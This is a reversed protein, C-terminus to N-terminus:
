ARPAGPMEAWHTPKLIALPRAWSGRSLDAEVWGEIRERKQEAWRGAAVYVGDSLLVPRDTPAGEIPLWRITRWTKRRTWALLVPGGISGILAGVLIVADTWDM